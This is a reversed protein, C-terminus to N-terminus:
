KKTISSFISDFSPLKPLNINEIGLIKAYPELTKDITNWHSSISALTVPLVIYRQYRVGYLWFAIFLAAEEIPVVSTLPYGYVTQPVHTKTSTGPLLLGEKPWAMVTQALLDMTLLLFVLKGTKSKKRSFKWPNPLGAVQARMFWRMRGWVQAFISWGAAWALHVGVSVPENLPNQAKKQKPIVSNISAQLATTTIPTLLSSMEVLSGMLGTSLSILKSGTEGSQLNQIIQAAMLTALPHSNGYMSTVCSIVEPTSV